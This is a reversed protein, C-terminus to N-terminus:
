RAFAHGARAQALAFEALAEQVLKLVRAELRKRPFQVLDDRGTPATAYWRSRRKTYLARMVPLPVALRRHSLSRNPAGAQLCPLADHGDSFKQVTLLEIGLGDSHHADGELDCTGGKLEFLSVAGGVLHEGARESYKKAPDSIRRVTM